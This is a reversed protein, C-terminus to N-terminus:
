MTAFDYVELEVDRAPATGPNTLDEFGVTASYVGVDLPVANVSVTVVVSAAAALTGDDPDVFAWDANVEAQWELEAGSVNQLTYTKSSPNAEHGKRASTKFDQAPLLNFGAM